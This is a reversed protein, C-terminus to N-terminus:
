RLFGQYLALLADPHFPKQLFADPELHEGGAIADLPLGSSLVVPVDPALARLRHLTDACEADPLHVDLLVMACEKAHVQLLSRAQAATTATITPIDESELVDRLLEQNFIEDDVVLVTRRVPRVDPPPVPKAPLAVRFVSGKGQESEVMIGGQHGHLIGLVASLGLGRGTFKTTYFPDFIKQLVDPSMGSGEDKVEMVVYLGATPGNGSFGQWHRLDSESLVVTTTRVVVGHGSGHLSEVANTVLNTVLQQMQRFDAMVPPLQADLETTVVASPDASAAIFAINEHIVDNLNVARIEFRSRGSYALLQKTLGSARHAAQEIKALSAHIPGAPDVKKKVLSARGLITTLLNNFEHAVGGALISLSEMKKSQQLADGLRKRETIDRQVSLYGLLSGAVDIIPTMSTEVEVVKGEKTRNTFTTEVTASQRLRDWLIAQTVDGNPRHELLHPTRIGIVEEATYGYLETFRPNIFRFLDNRDVMFIVDTSRTVAEGLLRLEQEAEKQATIDVIFGDIVIEESSIRYPHGTNRFWRDRGDRHRFRMEHSFPEPQDALTRLAGIYRAADDRHIAGMFLRIDNMLEESSYGLVNQAGNSIYLPVVMRGRRYHVRYIVTHLNAAIASIQERQLSLEEEVIRQGTINNFSAIAGTVTGNADLMPAVNMLLVAPTMGTATITFVRRYEAGGSRIVRLFPLGEMDLVKGSDDAITVGWPPLLDVPGPGEALRFLERAIRNAYTVSGDLGFLLIGSPTTRIISDLRQESERLASENTKALRYHRLVNSSLIHSAVATIFNLSVADFFDKMIERESYGQLSPAGLEHQFHVIIVILQVVSFLIYQRRTLLASALIFSPGYAFMGVDYVHMPSSHIIIFLLPVLSFPLAVAVQPSWGRKNLAYCLMVFFLEGHLVIAVIDLPHGSTM